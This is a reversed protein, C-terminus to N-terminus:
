TSIRKNKSIIAWPTVSAKNGIIPCLLVEKLRDLRFMQKRTDINELSKKHREALVQYFYTEIM